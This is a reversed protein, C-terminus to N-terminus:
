RCEIVFETVPHTGGGTRSSALRVNQYSAAFVSDEHLTTVIQVIAKMRDAAVPGSVQGTLVLKNQDAANALNDPNVSLSMLAANAPLAASLHMLRTAWSRPSAHVREVMAIEAPDLSWKTEAPTTSALRAQREIQRMRNGLSICNLGYLGVVLGVIGFYTVWAALLITRRRTRAMERQYVERRFNITFVPSV